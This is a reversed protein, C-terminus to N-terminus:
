SKSGVNKESATKPPKPVEMSAAAFMAGFDKVMKQLEAKKESDAAIARLYKVAVWLLYAQVIPIAGGILSLLLTM